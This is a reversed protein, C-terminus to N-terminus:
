SISREQLEEKRIADSLIDQWVAQLGKHCPAQARSHSEM